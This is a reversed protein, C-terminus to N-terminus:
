IKRWNENIFKIVDKLSANEDLVKTNEECDPTGTIDYTVKSDLTNSKLSIVPRVALTTSYVYTYSLSGPNSSGYVFFVYACSDDEDTNSTMTWYWNSVDHFDDDLKEVEEKTLLRVEGEIEIDSLYKEKFKNNLIRRIVSNEWSDDTVDNNYRVRNKVSLRKSDIIEQIIEESLVDTTTLYDLGNEQKYCKWEIGCIEITDKAKM